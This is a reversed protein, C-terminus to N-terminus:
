VEESSDINEQVPELILSFRQHNSRPLLRKLGGNISIGGNSVRGNMMTPKTDELLPDEVSWMDVYDSVTRRTNVAEESHYYSVRTFEEDVFSELSGVAKMFTVRKSPKNNWCAEMITKLPTPCYSPIPLRLTGAMVEKLVTENACGQYPQEGLTVIEWLVVGYSWVDSNSTFVGDRLSEPAMWRIPLLGADGKRYYDTEYIDRTMGFDGIKVVLRNDSEVSVLCNRAALDRHVFKKAEMFCMGDAIQAAMKLKLADDPPYDERSSILYSRLNGGNMLEMIVLPPTERSVVGLLQVIHFTGSVSKM